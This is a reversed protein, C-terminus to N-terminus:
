QPAPLGPGVHSLKWRAQLTTETLGSAASFTIDVTDAANSTCAISYTLTSTSIAAANDDNTQDSAAAGDMATLTCTETGAKNVISYRISGQRLQFDTADAAYIGYELIGGSGASQAIPIRVLATPSGAALTKLAVCTTGFYWYNCYQTTSATTDNVLVNPHTCATTGCAGLNSDTSNDAQETVRLTNSDASVAIQFTDPTNTTNYKINADSGSGFRWQHDDNVTQSTNWIYGAAITVGSSAVNDSLLTATADPGTWTRAATPGAFTINQSFVPLTTSGFITITRAADGPVLTLIRDATLDSTTLIRLRHSTNSDELAFVEAQVDEAVTLIDGTKDYVLGADGCSLFGGDNFCVQTTGGGSIATTGSTLGGGSGGATREPGTLEVSAFLPAFTYGGILLAVFMLWLRRM